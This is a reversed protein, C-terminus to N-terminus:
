LKLVVFGFGAHKGEDLPFKCCTILDMKKEQRPSVM